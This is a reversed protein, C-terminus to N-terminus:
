YMYIWQLKDLKNTWKRDLSDSCLDVINVDHLLPRDTIAQILHFSFNEGWNLWLIMESLYLLSWLLNWINLPLKQRVDWFLFSAFLVLYVQLPFIWNRKQYLITSYIKKLCWCNQPIKVIVDTLEILTKWSHNEFTILLIIWVQLKM